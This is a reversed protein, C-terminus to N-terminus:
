IALLLAQVGDVTESGCNGCRYNEADPEVGNQVNGCLRCMGENSTGFLVRRALREIRKTTVPLVKKM